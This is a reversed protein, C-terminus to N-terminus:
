IENATSRAGFRSGIKHQATNMPAVNPALGRELDLRGPRHALARCPERREVRAYAVGLHASWAARASAVVAPVKLATRAPRSPICAVLRLLDRTAVRRGGRM